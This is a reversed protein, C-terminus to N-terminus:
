KVYIVYNQSYLYGDDHKWIHYEVRGDTERYSDILVYYADVHAAHLIDCIKEVISIELENM